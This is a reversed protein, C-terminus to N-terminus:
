KRKNSTTSGFGFGGGFASTAGMAPAASAMMAAPQAAQPPPQQISKAMSSAIDSLPKASSSATRDWVSKQRAIEDHVAAVKSALGMFSENQARIIDGIATFCLPLHFKFHLSRTKSDTDLYLSGPCGVGFTGRPDFRESSDLSELNREIEEILM